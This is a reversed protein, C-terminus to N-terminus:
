SASSYPSVRHLLVDTEQTPGCSFDGSRRPPRAPRPRQEPNARPPWRRQPAWAQERLRGSGTSSGAEANEFSRSVLSVRRAHQSPRTAAARPLTPEQEPRRGSTEDDPALDSCRGPPALTPAARPRQRPAPASSGSALLLRPRATWHKSVKTRIVPLLRRRVSTARRRRLMPGVTLPPWAAGICDRFCGDAPGVRSADNAVAAALAAGSQTERIRNRLRGM